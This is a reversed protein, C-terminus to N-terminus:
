STCSNVTSESALERARALAATLVPENLRDDDCALHEGALQARLELLHHRLVCLATEHLDQDDTAESRSLPTLGLLLDQVDSLAAQIQVGSRVPRDCRPCVPSAAHAAVIM